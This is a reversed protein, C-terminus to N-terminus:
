TQMSPDAAKFSLDARGPSTEGRSYTGILVGAALVNGVLSAVFEARGPSHTLDTVVSSRFLM